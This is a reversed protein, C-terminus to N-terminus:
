EEVPYKALVVDKRDLITRALSLDCILDFGMEPNTIQTVVVKHRVEQCFSQMFAEFQEAMFLGETTDDDITTTKM